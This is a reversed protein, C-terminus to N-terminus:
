HKELQLLDIINKIHQMQFLINEMEKEFSVTKYMSRPEFMNQNSEIMMVLKDNIFSCEAKKDGVLASINAIQEVIDPSLLLHGEMQDDTYAKFQKEFRPDSLKIRKLNKEDSSFWNAFAGNEKRLIVKAVFPNKVKIDICIGSFVNKNTKPKVMYLKTEFFRIRADKYHFEISDESHSQNFTPIIESQQKLVSYNYSNYGNDNGIYSAGLSLFINPFIKTKIQNRYTLNLNYAKYGFILASVFYLHHILQALQSTKPLTAAIAFAVILAGIVIISFKIQKKVFTKRAAEYREENDLIKRKTDRDIKM